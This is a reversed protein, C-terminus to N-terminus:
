HWQKQDSTHYSCTSSSSYHSRAKNLHNRQWDEKNFIMSNVRASRSVMPKAFEQLNYGEVVPLPVTFYHNAGTTIGVEVKAYDAM